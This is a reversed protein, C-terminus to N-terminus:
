NKRAGGIEGQFTFPVEGARNALKVGGIISVKLGQNRGAHVDKVWEALRWVNSVLDVDVVAEGYAPIVVAQRNVGRGFEVDNLRVVYNMGVVSLEAPNPNQVRLQLGFRQEFLKLDQLRLDVLSVYPPELGTDFTNCGVIMM